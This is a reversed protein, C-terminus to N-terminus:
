KACKEILEELYDRSFRESYPYLISEHEFIEEKTWKFKIFKAPVGGCISYPPVDKTVVAGAAIVSGRGVTVGSLITVSCGIWVDKEIIVDEDYGKPKNQETIDTV